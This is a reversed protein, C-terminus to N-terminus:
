PQKAILNHFILEDNAEPDFELDRLNINTIAKNQNM